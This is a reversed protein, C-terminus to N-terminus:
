TSIHIWMHHNFFVVCVPKIPTLVTFICVHLPEIFTCIVFMCLSQPYFFVTNFIMTLSHIFLYLSRIFWWLYINSCIVTLLFPHRMDRIVCKRLEVTRVGKEIWTDVMCVWAHPTIRTATFHLLFLRPVDPPLFLVNCHCLFFVSM